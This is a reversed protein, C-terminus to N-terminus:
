ASPSNDSKYPLSSSPKVAASADLSADLCASSLEASSTGEGTCSDFGIGEITDSGVAADAGAFSLLM